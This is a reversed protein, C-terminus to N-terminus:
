PEFEDAGLDPASGVVRSRGDLDVGPRFPAEDMPTLAVGRDIATTSRATLHFDGMAANAVLSPTANELNNRQTAMAGDRARASVYANNRLDARTNNWRYSISAFAATANPGHLITNHFVRVGRAQELEIGTDYYRHNFWLVNNRLMGDFHGIPTVGPYPNDAYVRTGGGNGLGFGIGRACDVIVNNEVLTDRSGVWFHVAHEALGEGACYIGEFRNNRVSWGRGGHVDIGGTYCGGPTREVRPRGADTMQFLSCEVTSEDVWAVTGGNGNGKLFQEGHDLFRVDYVHLGRISNTGAPPYAHIAHDIAHTITLHAIRVDSASVAFIENTQYRADIIVRSSNGSAGQITVGANRVNLMQGAPLQYTGDELLLAAGTGRLAAVLAPLEAARAPGIRQVNAGSPVALPACRMSPSVASENSVDNQVDVPQADMLQTDASQVDISQVDNPPAADLGAETNSVADALVDVSAENPPSPADEQADNGVETRATTDNAGGDTINPSTCAASCCLFGFLVKKM